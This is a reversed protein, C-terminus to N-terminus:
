RRQWLRMENDFRFWTGNSDQWGTDPVDNWNVGDNSYRLKNNEIRMMRGDREKWTNGPVPQWSRNDNSMQLTNNDWRYRTSGEGAMWAGSRSRQWHEASVQAQSEPLLTLMAFAFLMLLKKM